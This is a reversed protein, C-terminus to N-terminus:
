SAADVSTCHEIALPAITRRLADRLAEDAASRRRLAEDMAAAEVPYIEEFTLGQRPERGLLADQFLEWADVLGSHAEIADDIESLDSLPADLGSLARRADLIHGRADTLLDGVRRAYEQRTMPDSGYIGHLDESAALRAALGTIPGVLEAVRQSEEAVCLSLRDTRGSRDVGHIRALSAEDARPIVARHVVERSLRLGRAVPQDIQLIFETDTAVVEVRLTWTDNFVNAGGSRLDFTHSHGPQDPYAQTLVVAIPGDLTWRLRGVPLSRTGPRAQMPTRVRADGVIVELVPSGLVPNRATTEDTLAYAIPGSADLREIVLLAGLFGVALV